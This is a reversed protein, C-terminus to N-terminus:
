AKPAEPSAKIDAPFLEVLVAELKVRRREALDLDDIADLISDYCIPNQACVETIKGELTAIREEIKCLELEGQKKAARTRVPALAANVAEKGM